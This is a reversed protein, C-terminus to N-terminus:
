TPIVAVPELKKPSQSFTFSYLYTFVPNTLFAKKTISYKFFFTSIFDM